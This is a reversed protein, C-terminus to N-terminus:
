VTPISRINLAELLPTSHCHRKLGLMAKLLNGQTKLLAKLNAKKLHIAECGYTLVSQVGVSFIHAAIEPKVGKHYLGCHQLAYFAKSTAKLRTEVHFSGADKALGAGLYSMKDVLKLRSGEIYWEPQKYFPNSGYIMCTTKSPNFRLGHKAIYNVALDILSQLGSPTTSSLLIDAAYCFVNYTDGDNTVGCKETRLMEILDEYFLNFLFPSSLGGQRTGREVPIPNGLNSNWRVTVTM